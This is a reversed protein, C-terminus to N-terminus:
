SKQLAEVTLNHFLLTSNKNVHILLLHLLKRLFLSAFFLSVIMFHSKLAEQLAFSRFFNYIKSTREIVLTVMIIGPYM